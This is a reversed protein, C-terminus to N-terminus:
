TVQPNGLSFRTESPIHMVLMRGGAFRVEEQQPILEDCTKSDLGPQGDM